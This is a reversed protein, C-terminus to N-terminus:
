LAEMNPPTGFDKDVHLWKPQEVLAFLTCLQQQPPQPATQLWSRSLLVAAGMQEQCGAAM